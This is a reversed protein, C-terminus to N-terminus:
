EKTQTEGGEKKTEVEPAEKQIKTKLTDAKEQTEVVIL